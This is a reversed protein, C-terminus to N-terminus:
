ARGQYVHRAHVVRDLLVREQEQFGAEAHGQMARRRLNALESSAQQFDQMAQGQRPGLRSAWSRALRRGSFTSLMEVEAPVFWGSGAYDLLRLRLNRRESARLGVVLGVFGVFLPVEVFFYTSLPYSSVVGNWFAHMGIAGVLGLPAMWVWAQRSRMTASVGLALGTSATFMIHAFPSAVGRLLFTLLITNQFKVFYSINEAFAFGAATVAAYVIGDVPGDFNRRWILFILLVGLGKTAEEVLPASIVASFSQAAFPSGTAGYALASASTNVLVSIVTSVGAGWLFATLLVGFPEPEWRDVWFVCGLVVALPILALLTPLLLGLAGGAQSSVLWLLVLLGAGGLCSLGYRAYDRRRSQAITGPQTWSVSSEYSIREPQTASLKLAQGKPVYGPRPAWGDGPRMMSM